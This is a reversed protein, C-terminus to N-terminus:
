GGPNEGRVLAEVYETLEVLLAGKFYDSHGAVKKVNHVRPQSFGESGAAGFPHFFLRAGVRVAMDKRSWFCHVREPRRWQAKDSMAPAICVIAAFDRVQHAHWSRLCGFSHAVIIDGDQAHQAVIQGDSCGGWRASFWHRKPLKVDVVKHGRRALEALLLDINAEGDTAIGNM